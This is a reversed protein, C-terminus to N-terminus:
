ESKNENESVIADAAVAFQSVADVGELRTSLGTHIPFDPSIGAKLLSNLSWKSVDGLSKQFSPYDVPIWSVFEQGTEDFSVVRDYDVQAPSMQRVGYDFHRTLCNKVM